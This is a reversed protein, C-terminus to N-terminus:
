TIAIQFEGYQYFSIEWAPLGSLRLMEFIKEWFQLLFIPSLNLCIKIFVLTYIQYFLPM